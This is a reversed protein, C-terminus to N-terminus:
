RAIQVSNSIADVIGGTVMTTLVNVLFPLTVLVLGFGVLIKAPLGVFFVNMQPVMRNLIGLAVDAVLLTGAIPLGIRLADVFMASVLGTLQHDATAALTASGLPVVEFSRQLAVILMHHGNVAFFILTATVLYFTDLPAGSMNFTPNFAPSLNLGMQMNILSAAMEIAGFVLAVAFGMLLGVLLEQAAAIVFPGTESLETGVAPVFPVLMLTLIVTFAVKIQVPVTRGNFGPVFMLLTGIRILM